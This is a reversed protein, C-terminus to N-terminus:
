ELTGPGVDLQHLGSPIHFLRFVREAEGAFGGPEGETIIFHIPDTLSRSLAQLPNGVNLDGRRVVSIGDFTSEGDGSVIGVVRNIQLHAIQIGLVGGGIVTCLGCHVSVSM